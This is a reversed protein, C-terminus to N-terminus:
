VKGGAATVRCAFGKLGDDFHLRNGSAPAPLDRITRDTLKPM